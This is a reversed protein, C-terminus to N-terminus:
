SRATVEFVASWYHVAGAGQNRLGAFTRRLDTRRRDRVDPPLVDAAQRRDLGGDQVGDLQRQPVRPEEGGAQAPPRAHQQVARGTLAAVGDSAEMEVTAKM